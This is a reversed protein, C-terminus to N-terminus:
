MYLWINNKLSFYITSQIFFWESKFSIESVAELHKSRQPPAHKKLCVISMWMSVLQAGSSNEDPDKILILSSNVAHMVKKHLVLLLYFYGNVEREVIDTIDTFTHSCVKRFHGNIFTSIIFFSLNRSGKRLIIFLEISDVTLM